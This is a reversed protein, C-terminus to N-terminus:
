LRERLIKDVVDVMTRKEKKAKRYIKPILDEKIRPSYMREDEEIKRDIEKWIFEERIRNLFDSFKEEM